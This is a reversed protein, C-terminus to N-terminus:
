AIVVTKMSQELKGIRENIGDITENLVQIQRIMMKNQIDNNASM